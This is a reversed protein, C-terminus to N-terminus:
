KEYRKLKQKLKDIIEDKEELQTIYNVIQQKIADNEKIYNFKYLDIEINKGIWFYSEYKNEEKNKEKLLIWCLNLNEFNKEYIIDYKEPSLEGINNIINYEKLKQNLLSNEMKLNQFEKQINSNEIKLNVIEMNEKSNNDRKKFDNIEKENFKNKEEYFKIKSEYEKILEKYYKDMEEKSNSYNSINFNDKMEELENKLDQSENLLLDIQEKNDKLVKSEDLLKNKDNDKYKLLEEELEKIKKELQFNIDSKLADNEKLIFFNNEHIIKPLFKIILIPNKIYNISIEKSITLLNIITKNQNIIYSFIDKNEILLNNFSNIIIKSKNDNKEDNSEKIDEKDITKYKITEFKNKNENINSLIKKSLKMIYIKLNDYKFKIKKFEIDNKSKKNNYKTKMENIIRLFQIVNNALIKNNNNNIIKADENNSNFINNKNILEEKEELNLNINFNNNKSTANIKIINNNFSASNESNTTKNNILNRSKKNIGFFNNKNIDMYIDFKKRIKTSNNLNQKSKFKTKFNKMNYFGYNFLTKYQYNNNIEKININNIKNDKNENNLYNKIEKLFKKIEYYIIRIKRQMLQRSDELMGIRNYLQVLKESYIKEIMIEKILNNSCIIQQNLTKSIKILNLVLNDFSVSFNKISDSINNNINNNNKIYKEEIEM